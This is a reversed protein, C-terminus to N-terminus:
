YHIQYAKTKTKKKEYFNMKYNTEVEPQFMGNNLLCSEWFNFWVRFKRPM